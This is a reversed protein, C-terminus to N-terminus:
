SAEPARVMGRPLPRPQFRPVDAAVVEAKRAVFIRLRSGLPLLPGLVTFAPWWKKIDRLHRLRVTFDSVDPSILVELEINRLTERVATQTCPETHAGFWSRTDGNCNLWVNEAIDRGERAHQLIRRANTM